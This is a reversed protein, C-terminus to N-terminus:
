PPARWSTASGSPAGGSRWLRSAFLPWLWASVPQGLGASRFSGPLAGTLYSVEATLAAPSLLLMAPGVLSWGTAVASAVRVRFGAASPTRTPPV